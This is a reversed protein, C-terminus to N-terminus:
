FDSPLPPKSILRRIVRKKLEDLNEDEISVTLRNHEGVFYQFLEDTPHKRIHGVPMQDRLVVESWGGGMTDKKDFTIYAM